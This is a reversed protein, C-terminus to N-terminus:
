QTGGDTEVGKQRQRFIFLMGLILLLPIGIAYPLIGSPNIKVFREVTIHIGPSAIVQSTSNPGDPEPILVMYVMFDGDLIANIVWDLTVTEGAALSEIYQTREPSWDEPDVVDGFSNLNFINMAVILSPSTEVGNNKIVTSYEIKDGTKAELYERTVSIQLDQSGSEQLASVSTFFVSITYLCALWITASVVLGRKRRMKIPIGGDLSLRPAAFLFLLGIVLVAFVVSAVLFTWLEDITRNNVIMKELFHDLGEMPNFQKLMRGMVGTQASGPFQVPLFVLLFFTLSAFLSTKNSASWISVLMGFTTFAPVILTGLLAGWRLAVGFSEDGQSLVILYPISIAFSVPWPSISALFKGAVLQIRSAPTLLLAELTSREREGSLSDAGIILAVFISVNISGMLILYVMEKPPILSLESNSAFVFSSVGLYVSYLIILYLAKGWLWLESLERKFVVWWIPQVSSSSELSNGNM